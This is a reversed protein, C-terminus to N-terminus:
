EQLGYRDGSVQQPTNRDAELLSRLKARAHFMRTKVTDVPCGMVEAIEHYRYGQFYTLEVVTRQASSLRAMARLLQRRQGANQAHDEPTTGEVLEIDDVDVTEPRSAARTKAHRGQRYAIGFIWTSVKAREAFGDAGRWVAMMTDNVVEEVLDPRGTVRLVFSVLRRYYSRYLDDFAAVDRSKAIRRLLTLDDSM